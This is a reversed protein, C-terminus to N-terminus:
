GRVKPSPLALRKREALFGEKGKGFPPPHRGQGVVLPSKIKKLARISRIAENEM